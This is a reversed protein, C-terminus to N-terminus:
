STCPAVERMRHNQAYAALYEEAEEATACWPLTAVCHWGTKGPKQYRAKFTNAGLGQMVKFKWGRRDEYVKGAM